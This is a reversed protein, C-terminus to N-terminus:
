SQSDYCKLNHFVIPVKHNWKLNIICDRHASGSYNGIIHCHDRVKVDAVVYDNDCIWCKISNKFNENNENYNRWAATTSIFSDPHYVM